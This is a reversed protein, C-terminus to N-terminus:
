LGWALRKHLLDSHLRYVKLHKVLSDYDKHCIAEQKETVALKSHMHSLSSGKFHDPVKEGAGRGPTVDSRKVPRTLPVANAGGIVGAEPGAALSYLVHFQPPRDLSM